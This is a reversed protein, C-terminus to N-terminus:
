NKICKSLHRALIDASTSVFETGCKFCKGDHLYISYDEKEIKKMLVNLKYKDVYNTNNKEGCDKYNVIGLRRANFISGTKKDHIFHTAIINKLGELVTKTYKEKNCIKCRVKTETCIDCFDIDIIHRLVGNKCKENIEKEADAREGIEREKAPPVFGGLPYEGNEGFNIPLTNNATRLHIVERCKEIHNKITKRKIDKCTFMYMEGCMICSASNTCKQRKVVSTSHNEECVAMITIDQFYVVGKNPMRGPHYGLENKIIEVGHSELHKIFVTKNKDSPEAIFSIEGCINCIFAFKRRRRPSKCSGCEVPIFDFVTGKTSIETPEYFNYFCGPFFEYKHLRLALSTKEEDTLKYKRRDDDGKRIIEDFEGLDNLYTLAITPKKTNM